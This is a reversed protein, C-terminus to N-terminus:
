AFVDSWVLEYENGLVHRVAVLQQTGGHGYRGNYHAALQALQAATLAATPDPRLDLLPAQKSTFFTEIDFDRMLEQWREASLLYERARVQPFRPLWDWEDGTHCGLIPDESADVARALMAELLLKRLVEHRIKNAVAQIVARAPLPGALELMMSRHRYFAYSGQAQVPRCDCDPSGLAILIARGEALVTPGAPVAGRRRKSHKAGFAHGHITAVEDHESSCQWIYASLHAAIDDADIEYFILDEELSEDKADQVKSGAAFVPLTTTGDRWRVKRPSHVTICQLRCSLALM